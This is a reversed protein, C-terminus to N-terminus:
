LQMRPCVLQFTFITMHTIIKWSAHFTRRKLLHGFPKYNNREVRWISDEYLLLKAQINKGKPIFSNVVHGNLIWCLTSKICGSLVSWDASIAKDM